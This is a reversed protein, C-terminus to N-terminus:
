VVEGGFGAARMMAERYEAGTAILGVARAADLRDTAARTTSTTTAAAARREVGEHEEAAESYATLHGAAPNILALLRKLASELAQVHAREAELRAVAMDREVQTAALRLRLERETMSSSMLGGAAAGSAARRGAFRTPTYDDPGPANPLCESSHRRPRPARESAVHAFPEDSGQGMIFTSTDADHTRQVAGEGPIVPVADGVAFAALLADLERHAQDVKRRRAATQRPKPRTSQGETPPSQSRHTSSAIVENWPRSGEPLPHQHINRLADLASSGGDVLAAPAETGDDSLVLVRPGATAARVAAADVVVEM